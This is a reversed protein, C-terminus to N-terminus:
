EEVFDYITQINMGPQMEELHSLDYCPNIYNQNCLDTLISAGNYFDGTEMEAVALDYCSVADDLNCAIEWYEKAKEINDSSDEILRWALKSCSLPENNLCVAKHYYDAASNDGYRGGEIKEYMFAISLCVIEDGNVLCADTIKNFIDQHRYTEAKVLQSFLFCYLISIVLWKIIKIFVRKMRKKIQVNFTMEKTPNLVCIPNTLLNM